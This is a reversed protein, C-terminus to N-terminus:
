YDEFCAGLKRTTSFRSHLYLCAEDIWRYDSTDALLGSQIMCFVRVGNSAASGSMSFAALSGSAGPAPGLSGLGVGSAKRRKARICRYKYDSEVQIEVGMGELVERVHKMVEPPARTTITTQDVAGHHIRLAGGVNHAGPTSAAGSSSDGGVTVSNRIRNIISPPSFSTDTASSASRKPHGTAHVVVSPSRHTASTPTTVFVQVPSSPSHTTGQNITGSSANSKSRYQAQTPTVGRDKEKEKERESDQEEGGSSPELGVSERGGKNKTRFWAMVKRAKSTSAQMGGAIDTRSVNGFTPTAREKTREDGEGGRAPATTPPLYASPPAKREKEADLGTAATPTTASAMRGKNTRNKISRSIPEVMVTLTNRRSKKGPTVAADKEGGSPSLLSASASASSPGVQLTSPRDREKEKEKDRVSPSGGSSASDTFLAASASSDSPMRSTTGNVNVNVENANASGNTGGFIKGLGMKDISSIGRKHRSSGKSSGTDKDKSTDAADTSAAPTAPPSASKIVIPPASRTPPSSSSVSNSRQAITSPPTKTPSTTPAAPLPKSSGSSQSPRRKEMTTTAAAANVSAAQSNSRERTRPPSSVPVPTERDRTRSDARERGSRRERDESERRGSGGASGTRTHSPSPEDYEVQITHRFKDANGTSSKKGGSSPPPGAPSRTKTSASIPAFPDDDDMAALVPQQLPSARSTSTEYLYEPQSSRSKQSMMPSQSYSSPALLANPLAAAAAAKMQRQYAIRKLQHQEMAAKELEDVTKGFASPVSSISPHAYAGLWPHRMVGELDSRRAPDPVLMMSLLDRAEDSIYEPFSLPTNVIYKYLLNINDGDPNAPDDDFPLYGALMAYLIVGCSWIDVASGVYLGESIVLEPAAYCPSGCSTQMLDDSRHEFRNAFGFDTIIVNRHRDLLLNELKLDRHVIKKQHIYWVGSILQSFLKAADKEKLYRHALIHDFLEGGSAYELIIGIYKDTEIM